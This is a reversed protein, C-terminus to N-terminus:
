LLHGKRKFREGNRERKDVVRERERAREWESETERERERERKIENEIMGEMVIEMRRVINVWSGGGGGGGGVCM